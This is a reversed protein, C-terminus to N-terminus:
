GTGGTLKVGLYSLGASVAIVVGHAIWRARELAGIKDEAKSIREDHKAIYETIANNREHRMEKDAKLGAEFAALRELTEIQKDRIEKLGDELRQLEGTM